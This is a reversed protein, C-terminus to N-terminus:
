ILYLHFKHPLNRVRSAYKLVSKIRKVFYVDIKKKKKLNSLEELTLDTEMAARAAVSIKPM